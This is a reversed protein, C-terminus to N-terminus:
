FISRIIRFMERNGSNFNLSLSDDSSFLWFVGCGAAQARMARHLRPPQKQSHIHLLEQQSWAHHEKNTGWPTRSEHSRRSSGLKGTRLHVEHGASDCLPPCAHTHATSSDRDTISKSERKASRATRSIGGAALSSRDNAASDSQLLESRRRM